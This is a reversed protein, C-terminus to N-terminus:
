YTSLSSTHNSYEDDLRGGIKFILFNINIYEIM